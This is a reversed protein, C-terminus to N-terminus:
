FSGNACDSLSPLSVRSGNGCSLLACLVNRQSIKCKMINMVMLLIGTDATAAWRRVFM